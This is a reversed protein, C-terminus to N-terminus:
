TKKKGHSAKKYADHLKKIDESEMTDPLKFGQETLADRFGGPTSFKGDKKKGSTKLAEIIAPMASPELPQEKPDVATEKKEAKIADIIPEVPAQEDLPAPLELYNEEEQDDVSAVLQTDPQAETAPPQGAVDILQESEIDIEEVEQAKQPPAPPKITKKAKAVEVPSPKKMEETLLIPTEAEEAPPLFEEDEGEDTPLISELSVEAPSNLKARIEDLEKYVENLRLAAESTPGINMKDKLAGKQLKSETAGEEAIEQTLKDYEASLQAAKQRLKWTELGGAASIEQDLKTKAARSKVRDMKLNYLSRANEKLQGSFDKLSRGEIPFMWTVDPHDPHVFKVTRVTPGEAGDKGELVATSFEVRMKPDIDGAVRVAEGMLEAESAPSNEKAERHAQMDIVKALKPEPAVVAEAKEQYGSKLSALHEDLKRIAEENRVWSKAMRFVTKTKQWWSTTSKKFDSSVEEVQKDLELKKNTLAEQGAEFAKPELREQPAPAGRMEARVQNLEQQVANLRAGAESTPGFDMKGKLTLKQTKSEIKGEEAIQEALRDYEASLQAERQGLTPAEQGGTVVENSNGAETDQSKPTEESAPAEELKRAPETM